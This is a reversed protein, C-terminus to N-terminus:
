SETVWRITSGGKLKKVVLKRDMQEKLETVHSIIGILRQDGALEKLIQIAKMRSEEDLSGFGEDIFMADVQVKGATRWIVDAMGLAMALAAMFSEGGSLTKVDRIQDTVISYVDLDLGVEGRKSLEELSRCQLLFQGDTMVRLRQNAARIMEQFYQRQVYTQFDLRVAGSLRGNATQSLTHIVEYKKEIKAREDEIQKLEQYAQRNRSLIGTFVAEQKQSAKLSEAMRQIQQKLELTDGRRKDETQEALQQYVAQEKILREEYARGEEEWRKMEEQSHHAAQYDAETSFGQQQMIDLFSLRAAEAAEQQQEKNRKEAELRGNNKEADEMVKKWLEEAKQCRIELKQKQKELQEKHAAAEQKTPYLLTEKLYSVQTRKQEATLRQQQWAAQLDEAAKELNKQQKRGTELQQRLEQSKAAATEAQKREARAAKLQQKCYKLHKQIEPKWTEEPFEPPMKRWLRLHSAVQEKCSDCFTKAKTHEQMALSRKEEALDRKKKAREAVAQTVTDASWQAKRPHCASGCVPCPKGEELAQALIGAQASLFKRYKQNYEQEALEYAQHDKELQLRTDKALEWANKWAETLEQLKQLREQLEEWKREEAQKEALGNAVSEQQGQEEEWVSISNKVDLLEKAAKQYEQKAANEAAAEDGYQLELDQYQQYVPMAEKIRSLQAAIEPLAEDREQQKQLHQQKAEQVSAKGKKTQEQLATLRKEFVALEKKREKYNKEYAAAKEAKRALALSAKYQQQKTEQTKLQELSERSRDRRDLLSNIEETRLLISEQESLAKRESERQKSLCLEAEEAEGLIGDLITLALGEAPEPAGDGACNEVPCLEEDTIPLQRKVKDWLEQYRSHEILEVHNLEHLYLKHNDDLREQWLKEQERLKEQISGYIGTHFLKSFIEKREKSPAHLLKLYDGQAIMAIQSFQHKELGLIEQLKRDIDRLKGPYEVGDPLTLAAKATVQIKTFEGQKNRKKSRRFYSPSRVIEYVQGHEEFRLAVFTDADDDAYQSRMMSAERAQGSTEGFLAFTLADFITTKGAGTDGTILFLGHGIKEFDVQEKGGYSGFASMTLQLPKM